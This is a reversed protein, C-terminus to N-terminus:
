ILCSLNWDFDTVLSLSSWLMIFLPWIMFLIHRAVHGTSCAACSLNCFSLLGPSPTGSVLTQTKSIPLTWHHSAPCLQAGAGAGTFPPHPNSVYAPSCFAVHKGLPGTRAHSCNLSRMSPSQTGESHSTWQSFCNCHQISPMRGLPPWFSVHNLYPTYALAGVPYLLLLHIHVWCQLM